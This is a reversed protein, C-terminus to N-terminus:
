YLFTQKWYITSQGLWSNILSDFISIFITPAPQSSLLINETGWLIEWKLGEKLLKVVKVIGCAQWTKPTGYFGLSVM